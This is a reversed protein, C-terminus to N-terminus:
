FVNPGTETTDQAHSTTSNSKTHEKNNCIYM